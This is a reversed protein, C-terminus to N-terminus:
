SASSSKVNVISEAPQNKLTKNNISSKIVTVSMTKNASRNATITAQKKDYQHYHYNTSSTTKQKLHHYHGVVNNNNKAVIISSFSRSHTRIYQCLLPHFNVVTQQQQQRQHYQHYKESSM